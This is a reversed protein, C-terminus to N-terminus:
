SEEGRNQWHLLQRDSKAAAYKAPNVKLRKAHRVEGTTLGLYDCLMSESMSPPEPLDDEPENRMMRIIEARPPSDM